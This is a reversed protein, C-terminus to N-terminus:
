ADHVSEEKRGSQLCLSVVEECRIARQFHDRAIRQAATTYFHNESFFATPEDVAILEGDFFMGCRDASAAAFEIDHTVTVITMGGACLTRLLATLKAKACADIGKAPEDLLLISPHLLLLKAIAAKQQEGGSLDYPHTQLCGCLDFTDATKCIEQETKEKDYGLLTCIEALDAYLSQELFVTQPNQPLYAIEGSKPTRFKKGELRLTGHYPKLLGAMVRLLTTKGTGNGGLICLHEGRYITCSLNRLIDRGNKEYRFSVDRLSLCETERSVRPPDPMQVTNRFKSQIYTRGERVTLPCDEAAGLMKGIRMASPLAAFMPHAPNAASFKRPPDCCRIEGQELLVARDALPFASELDHEILLITLGLERNLKYLTQMFNEAAIPDLQATPEDLLLLRPRMAMVAALSVLQKQGGSLSDTDAHFWPEIGFYHVMEAVTRRIVNQPKGLNELGFALEHWVKDTIIQADPNQQVIGIEAAATCADLETIPTGQYFITGSKDGFPALERKILRLLTSKGCGSEGCVVVCEGQEVRLNIHTLANRQANPYRFTLDEIQLLAM